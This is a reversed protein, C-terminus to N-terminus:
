AKLSWYRHILLRNGLRQRRDKTRVLEGTVLMLRRVNYVHAKSAVTATKDDLLRDMERQEINPHEKLMDTIIQRIKQTRSDLKRKKRTPTKNGNLTRERISNLSRKVIQEVRQKTVNYLHGIEDYTMDDYFRLKIMMRQRAPLHNLLSQHDDVAKHEKGFTHYASKALLRDDVIRNVRKYKEKHSLVSLCRYLASVYYTVFSSDQNPVFNNICRVLCLSVLDYREDVPHENRLKLGLRLLKRVSTDDFMFNSVQPDHNRRDAEQQAFRHYFRVAARGINIISVGNTIFVKNEKIDTRWHSSM